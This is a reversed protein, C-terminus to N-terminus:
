RIEMGRMTGDRNSQMGGGGGEEGGGKAANCMNYRGMYKEIGSMEDMGGIGGMSGIGGMMNRWCGNWGRREARATGGAGNRKRGNWGRWSREM